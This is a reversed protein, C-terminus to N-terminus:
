ILIIVLALAFLLSLKVILPCIKKKDEQARKLKEEVSLMFNELQELENKVDLSGLKTVIYKLEEIEENELVKINSLDLEKGHLYNKYAEIFLKFQKKPTQGNLFNLVKEQKFSINLKFQNLFMKLNVYFDFKDKIQESVARAILMITFILVVVLIWKM